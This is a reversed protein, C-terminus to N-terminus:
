KKRGFGGETPFQNDEIDNTYDVWYTFLSIVLYYPAFFVTYLRSIPRFLLGILLFAVPFFLLSYSKMGFRRIMYGFILSLISNILFLLFVIRVAGGLYRLEFIAFGILTFLVSLVGLSIYRNKNMFQIMKPITDIVKQM